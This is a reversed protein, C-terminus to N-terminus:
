FIADYHHERLWDAMERVYTAYALAEDKTGFTDGDLLTFDQTDNFRHNEFRCVINYETDTCVWWNEQTASKQLIFREM